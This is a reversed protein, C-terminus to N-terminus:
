VGRETLNLVNKQQEAIWQYIEDEIWGVRNPSLRIPRPFKGAKIIRWLTTHSICVIEIVKTEKIVKM